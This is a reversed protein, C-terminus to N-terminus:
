KNIYIRAIEAAAKEIGPYVTSQNINLMDLEKLIENKQTINISKFKVSSCGTDPLIPSHGFLLFAGSQSSIRANSIRGRVYLIKNLDRADINSKFYPKEDRILHLIKEFDTVDENGPNKYINYEPLIDKDANSLLALNAICSVTDSDYFKINDKKEELIIVQGIADDDKHGKYESACAFYLAILSNSSVDLLRTPLGYHQMRVLKDLMYRDTHFEAPQVTLLEKIMTSENALYNYYGSSNKRLLSPLLRYKNNSHGRYFCESGEQPKLELIKELFGVVTSVPDDINDLPMPFKPNKDVWKYTDNVGLKSMAHKIDGERVAWLARNFGEPGLGLAERYQGESVHVRSLAGKCNFEIYENTKSIIKIEGVIISIYHKKNPDALDKDNLTQTLLTPLEELFKFSCDVFPVLNNRISESTSELLKSLPIRIENKNKDWETKRDVIICNFM